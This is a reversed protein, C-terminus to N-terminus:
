QRKQGVMGGHQWGEPGGHSQDMAGRRRRSKSEDHRWDGCRRTVMAEIRRAEVDGDSQGLASVSLWEV